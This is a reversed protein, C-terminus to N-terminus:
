RHISAKLREFCSYCFTVGNNLEADSKRKLFLLDTDRHNREMVIGNILKRENQCAQRNICKLTLSTSYSDVLMLGVAIHGKM